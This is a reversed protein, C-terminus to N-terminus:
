FKRVENMAARLVERDLVTGSRTEAADVIRLWATYIQEREETEIFGSRRDLANFGETYTRGVQALTATLAAADCTAAALKLAETCAKRYLAAAKNAQATSVHASGDWDRFPNDLNAALWDPKRLQSVELDLGSAVERAYAKRIAAGLAAPVSSL